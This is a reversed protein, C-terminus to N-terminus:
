QVGGVVSHSRTTTNSTETVLGDFTSFGSARSYGTFSSGSGAYYYENSGSGSGSASSNSCRNWWGCYYNRNSSSRAYEYEYASDGERKFAYGSSRVVDLFNTRGQVNLESITRSRTVEDVNRVYAEGAIASQAFALFVGLGVLGAFLRTKM